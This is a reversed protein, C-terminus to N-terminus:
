KYEAVRVNFSADYHLKNENGSHWLLDMRMAFRGPTGSTFLSNSIVLIENRIGSETLLTLVNIFVLSASSTQHSLLM